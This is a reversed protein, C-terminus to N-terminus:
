NNNTALSINCFTTVTNDTTTATVKYIKSMIRTSDSTTTMVTNKRIIITM